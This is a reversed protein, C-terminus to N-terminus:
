LSMLHAYIDSTIAALLLVAFGRVRLNDKVAALEEIKAKYKAIKGDMKGVREAAPRLLDIEDRLMPVASVIATKEQLEAAMAELERQMQQIRDDLLAHVL